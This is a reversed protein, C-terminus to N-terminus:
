GHPPRNSLSDMVPAPVNSQVLRSLVQQLLPITSTAGEERGQRLAWACRLNDLRTWRRELDACTGSLM